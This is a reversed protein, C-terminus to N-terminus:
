KEGRMHRSSSRYQRGSAIQEVIYSRRDRRLVRYESGFITVKDGPEYKARVTTHHKQVKERWERSYENTPPPMKEILRLPCDYYTPGMDESISKYGWRGNDSSILYLALFKVGSPNEWAVWLRRGYETSAQDLKVWGDSSKTLHEVLERRSDWGYLWGM